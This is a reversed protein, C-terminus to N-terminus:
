AERAHRKITGGRGCVGVEGGLENADLGAAGGLEDAHADVAGSPKEGSGAVQGVLNMEPLETQLGGGALEERALADAQLNGAAGKRKVVAIRTGVHGRGAGRGPIPLTGRLKDEVIALM